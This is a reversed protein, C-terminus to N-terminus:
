GRSSDDDGVGEFISLDEDNGLVEDHEHVSLSLKLCQHLRGAADVFVNTTGVLGDDHDDQVSVVFALLKTVCAKMTIM